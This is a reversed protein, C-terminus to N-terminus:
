PAAIAAPRGTRVMVGAIGHHSVLNVSLRGGPSKEGRWWASFQRWLDTVLLDGTPEHSLPIDYPAYTFKYEVFLSTQGLDIEVGALGQGAFGAFHYEYTRVNENAYGVESHPLSVGAGAGAYPRLWGFLSGLRFLGNYTLMNHGHSFELKSFVSKMPASPPLPKGNHTGTFKAVTEPNAIAKAHTFDLMTGFRGFPNWRWVRIGYYIPSKFPQGIWDFDSATVEGDDRKIRVTDPYTYAVGGYGGVARAPDLLHDRWTTDAVALSRSAADQHLDPQISAAIIMASLAGVGCLASVKATVGTGLKLTASWEGAAPRQLARM